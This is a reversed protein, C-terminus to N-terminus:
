LKYTLALDDATLDQVTELGGEITANPKLIRTQRSPIGGQRSYDLTPLLGDTEVKAGLGQFAKLLGARTLDRGKCAAELTQALIVQQAYGFMVFATKPDKPFTTKFADRVKSPGPLTSAFPAVSAVVLFKKEASAKAPGTLLTGSFSPNSGVFPVDLGAADSVQLANGVQASSTTMLVAKVGAAKLAAIQATLDADTPKIKQEVLTLGYKDAAAKSGTAANQGYPGEHYIHGIKDGKALGKNKMLYGVANIMEVDYTTGILMINKNALLDSGFSAAFTPMQDTEIDKQLASIIPTGLLEDLALVKDKVEAYTSSAGTTTYKHDKTIFEVKRDCVTGKQSWFLTRGQEIGKGAAAFPGTRDTLVGLTITSDTVGVDTKIPGGSSPSSSATDTKTSCAGTALLAVALAGAVVARRSRPLWM